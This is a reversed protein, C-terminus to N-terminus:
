IPFILKIFSFLTAGTMAGIVSVGHKLLFAKLETEKEDINKQNNLILALKENISTLNNLSLIEAKIQEFQKNDLQFQFPNTLESLNQIILKNTSMSKISANEIQLIGDSQVNMKEVILNISPVDLSKFNSRLNLETNEELIGSNVQHSLRLLLARRQIELEPDLSRSNSIKDLTANFITHFTDTLDDISSYYVKFKGETISRLFSVEVSIGKEQLFYRSVLNHFDIFVDDNVLITDYQLVTHFSFLRCTDQILVKNEKEFERLKLLFEQSLNLMNCYDFIILGGPNFVLDDLKIEAKTQFLLNTQTGEFRLVGNLQTHSLNVWPTGENREVSNTEHLESNYFSLLGSYNNRDFSVGYLFKSSFTVHLDRIRFQNEIVHFPLDFCCDEVLVASHFINNNISVHNLFQSNNMIYFEKHFVCTSEINVDERFYCHDIVFGGKFECNNLAVINRFYLGHILVDDHFICDYLTIERKIVYEYWCIGQEEGDFFENFEDPLRAGTLQIDYLEIEDQSELHIILKFFWDLCNKHRKWELDDSHFLCRGTSSHIPLDRDFSTEFDCFQDQNRYLHTCM